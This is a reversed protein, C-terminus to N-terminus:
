VATEERIKVPLTTLEGAFAKQLISQKLEALSELKQQYIAELRQTEAHLYEFKELQNEMAANPAIPLVFRKLSQGTFHQIGAGTFYQRLNGNKDSLYLYFLFWQSHLVEKFRVRHLAKQFYITEEHPWIAARGPYGGECILVDGKRASYRDEEIEEFKMELVDGLNFDFWRVNLNRLYPKFTGKNKKKDLMKGLCHEALESVSKKVWGDGKQTFVGDLYSEFLERANALNNETNAVAADIGAFAEDLIAVIRKQEALPPLPIQFNKVQTLSLNQQAVGGRQKEIQEILIGSSLARMVFEPMVETSPQLRIIALAQNTNAPLIEPSVQATRGLAGAISFLIDGSKLQSRKLSEHCDVDIHAFKNLLFFGNKTISEIKVFNVGANTFRYGVSTPTTGKTVLETIEDITVTKWGVMLGDGSYWYSDCGVYDGM